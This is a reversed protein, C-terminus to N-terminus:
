EYKADVDILTLKEIVLAKDAPPDKPITLTGTAVTLDATSYDFSEEIKLTGQKRRGLIRVQYSGPLWTVDVTDLREKHSMFDGMVQRYLLTDFAEMSDTPQVYLRLRNCEITDPIELPIKVTVTRLDDSSAFLTEGDAPLTLHQTSVHKVHIWMISSKGRRFFLGM